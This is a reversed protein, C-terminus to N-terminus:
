TFIKDRGRYFIKDSRRKHRKTTFYYVRHLTLVCAFVYLRTFKGKSVDPLQVNLFIVYRFKEIVRYVTSEQFPKNNDLDYMTSVFVKNANCFGESQLDSNDNEVPITDPYKRLVVKMQKPDMNIVKGVTQKYDKVSQWSSGRIDIPGDIVEERAVDIVFVKTAIGPVNRSLNVTQKKVFM